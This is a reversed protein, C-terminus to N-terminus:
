DKGPGQRLEPFADSQSRGFWGPPSRRTTLPSADAWRDAKLRPIRYRAFEKHTVAGCGEVINAAISRAAKRLQTRLDAEGKEAFDRSVRNIALSLAHARQWARIHQFNRV